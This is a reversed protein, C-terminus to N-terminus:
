IAVLCRLPAPENGEHRLPVEEVEQRRLGASRGGEREPHLRLQRSRRQYRDPRRQMPSAAWAMDGTPPTPMLRAIWAATAAALTRAARSRAPRDGGSVEAPHLAAALKRGADRLAKLDDRLAADDAADEAAAAPELEREPETEEGAPREEAAKGGAQDADADAAHV